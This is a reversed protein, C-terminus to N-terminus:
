RTRRVRKLWVLLRSSGANSGRGLGGVLDALSAALTLIAIIAIIIPSTQITDFIDPRVAAYDELGYYRLRMEVYGVESLFTM